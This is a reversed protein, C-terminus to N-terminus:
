HLYRTALLYDEAALLFSEDRALELVTEKTEQDLEADSDVAAIFGGLRGGRALGAMRLVLQRVATDQNIAELSEIDQVWPAPM